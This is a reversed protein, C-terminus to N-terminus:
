RQVTEKYRKRSARKCTQCTAVGEKTRYTNEPTYVHGQPCHTPKPRALNREKRTAISAARSEATVAHGKLAAAIRSRHVDTFKRGKSARGIAAKTEPKMPEAARHHRTCLFAINSRDNNLQDGDKHHREVRGVTCGDVECTLPGPYMRRARLRGLAKRRAEPQMKFSMPTGRSLSKSSTQGCCM